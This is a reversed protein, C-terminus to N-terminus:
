RAAVMQGRVEHEALPIERLLGRALAIALEEHHAGAADELREALDGVTLAGFTASSGRLRHGVRELAPLDRRGVGRRLEDRSRELGNLFLGGVERLKREDGIADAIDEVVDAELPDSRRPIRRRDTRM